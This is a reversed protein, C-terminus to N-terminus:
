GGNGSHVFDILYSESGPEWVKYKPMIQQFIDSSLFSTLWNALAEWSQGYFWDRDVHAFQRVFPAIALDAISESNGFLFRNKELRYNLSYLWECAANRNEEGSELDYRNPYKYRDLNFKFEGDNQSILELMQAKEEEQEPLIGNPDSKGLAWLMIDLSEDIVKDNTLILVPVTGKPSAQLMEAPKDRLVIERLYHSIQASALALRARMAYPCRRFSYLLPLELHM